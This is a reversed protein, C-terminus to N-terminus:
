NDVWEKEVLQVHLNAKLIAEFHLKDMQKALSKVFDVSFILDFSEEMHSLDQSIQFGVDAGQLDVLGALLPNWGSLMKTTSCVKNCDFGFFDNSSFIVELPQIEQEPCVLVWPVSGRDEMKVFM